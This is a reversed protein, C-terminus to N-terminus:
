QATAGASISATHGLFGRRRGLMVLVAIVTSSVATGMGYDAAEDGRTRDRAALPSLRGDAGSVPATDGM